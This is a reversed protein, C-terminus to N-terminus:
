AVARVEFNTITFNTPRPNGDVVLTKNGTVFYTAGDATTYIHQIVLTVNSWGPVENSTTYKDQCPQMKNAVDTGSCFTSFYQESTTNSALSVNFGYQCGGPSCGETYNSVVWSSPAPPLARAKPSWTRSAWITPAASTTSLLAAAGLFLASPKMKSIHPTSQFTRPSLNPTHSHEYVVTWTTLFM